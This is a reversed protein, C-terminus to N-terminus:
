FNLAKAPRPNLDDLVNLRGADVYDQYSSVIKVHGLSWTLGTEFIQCSFDVDPLIRNSTRM